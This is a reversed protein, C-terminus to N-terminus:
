CTWGFHYFSSFSPVIGQVLGKWVGFYYWIPVQVSVISEQCVHINGAVVDETYSPSVVLIIPVDCLFTVELPKIILSRLLRLLGRIFRIIVHINIVVILNCHIVTTRLFFTGNM